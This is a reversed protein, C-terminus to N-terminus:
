GGHPISAQLVEPHVIEVLTTAAMEAEELTAGADFVIKMMEVAAEKLLPEPRWGEAYSTNKSLRSEAKSM